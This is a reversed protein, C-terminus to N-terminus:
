RFRWFHKRTGHWAVGGSINVSIVLILEPRGQGQGGFRWVCYKKFWGWVVSALFFFRKFVGAGLLAVLPIM